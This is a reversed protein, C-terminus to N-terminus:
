GGQGLYTGLQQKTHVSMLQLAGGGALRDDKVYVVCPQVSPRHEPALNGAPIPHYLYTCVTGCSPHVQNEACACVLAAGSALLAASCWEHIHLYLM